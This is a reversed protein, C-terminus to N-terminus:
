HRPFRTSRRPRDLRHLAANLSELASSLRISHGLNVLHRRGRRVGAAMLFMATGCMLLASLTLASVGTIPLGSTDASGSGSPSNPDSPAPAVVLTGDVYTVIGGDAKVGGSCHTTYTGATVLQTLPTILDSPDFVGCTPSTTWDSPSTTPDTTFTPVPVPDGATVDALPDVTLTVDVALPPYNPGQFLFSSPQFGCNFMAWGQFTQDNPVTFQIQTGDGNVTVPLSGSWGFGMQTIATCGSLGTGTMIVTQGGGGQLCSMYPVSIDNCPPNYNSGTLTPPDAFAATFSGLCLAISAVIAALGFSLLRRM